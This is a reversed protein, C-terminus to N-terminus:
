KDIRRVVLLNKSMIKNKMKLLKEFKDYQASLVRGNLFSKDKLKILKLIFSCFKTISAGGSRKRKSMEQWLVKGTRKKGQDIMDEFIKTNIPGPALAILNYKKQELAVNETLRTIASKSISYSHFRLMPGTGGGGSFNLILSSKSARMLNGFYKLIMLTAVTNIKFTKYFNDFNLKEIISAEGIISCFNLIIDIKIKKKNFINKLNIIDKEILFDCKFLNQSNDFYKFKRLRNKSRYTGFIKYNKKSKLDLYVPRALDSTVGFILINKIM